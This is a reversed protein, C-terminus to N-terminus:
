GFAAIEEANVQSPYILLAPSHLQSYNWPLKGEAWSEGHEKPIDNCAFQLIQAIQNQAGKAQWCLVELDFLIGWGAGVGDIKNLVGVVVSLM